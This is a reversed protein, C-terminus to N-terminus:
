IKRPSRSRSTTGRPSVPRWRFIRRCGWASSSACTPAPRRAGRPSRATSRPRRSRPRTPPSSWCAARRWCWRAGRPWARWIARSRSSGRRGTRSPRRIASSSTSTASAIPSSRSRRSRTTPSRRSRRRISARSSSTAARARTRRPARPRGGDGRARGGQGRVGLVRRHVLVPQALPARGRAGGGGGLRPAYRPVAGRRAARDRRRRVPLRRRRRRARRPAEDGRVRVAPEPPAAGGLPRLRRQEYIGRPKVAAEIADYLEDRWALAGPSLWQVVVFEGYRDVTVGPLGESEGSFVRMAAPLPRGLTRRLEFRAPSRAAIAGKGPAVREGPDRTLVRVAIAHERDVYGRAVFEQNGTILDVVAGTPEAIGRPGLADRFVWPHGSRVRSAIDGPVRYQGVRMRVGPAAQPPGSPRHGKRVARCRPQISCSLLNGRRPVM